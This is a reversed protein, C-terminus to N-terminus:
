SLHPTLRHPRQQDEDDSFVHRYVRSRTEHLYPKKWKETIRGLQTYEDLCRQWRARYDALQDLTLLASGVFLSSARIRLKGERLLEPITIFVAERYADAFRRKYMGELIPSRHINVLIREATLRCYAAVVFNGVVISETHLLALLYLADFPCSEGRVVSDLSHIFAKLLREDDCPDFVVFVFRPKLTLHKRMKERPLRHLQLRRLGETIATSFYRLESAPDDLLFFVPRYLDSAHDKFDDCEFLARMATAFSINTRKRRARQKQGVVKTYFRLRVGRSVRCGTLRILYVQLDQDGVGMEDKLRRLFRASVHWLFSTEPPRGLKV